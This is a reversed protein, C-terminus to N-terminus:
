KIIGYIFTMMADYYLSIFPNVFENYEMVAGDSAIAIENKIFDSFDIFEEQDSPIKLSVITLARLYDDTYQVLLAFHKFDGCTM